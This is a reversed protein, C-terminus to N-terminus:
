HSITLTPTGLAKTSAQAVSMNTLHESSLAAEKQQQNRGQIYKQFAIERIKKFKCHQVNETEEKPEESLKNLYILFSLRKKQIKPLIQVQLIHPKLGASCTFLNQM